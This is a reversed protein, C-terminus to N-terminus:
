FFGDLNELFEKFIHKKNYTEHFLKQTNKIKEYIEKENINLITSFLEIIDNNSYGCNYNDLLNKQAGMSNTMIILNSAAYSIFRSPIITELFKENNSFLSLGFICKKFIESTDKASLRGHFIFNKTLDYKKVMNEFYTKKVGSGVIHLKFQREKNKIILNKLNPLIKVLEDIGQAEGINGAIVIELNYDIYLKQSIFTDETWNPLSYIKSEDNVYRAIYKNMEYNQLFIRDCNNLIYKAIYNFFYSFNKLKKKKLYFSEPFIDQVWIIIKCKFKKKLLIAALAQTMPSTAPIFICDIKQKHRRLQLYSFINFTVYNLFLNIASSNKRPYTFVRNIIMNNYIENRKNFKSYGKYFKGDPYNPISTIVKLNYNKSLETALENIRFYEPWFFQSLILFTKQNNNM